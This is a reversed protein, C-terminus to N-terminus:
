QPLYINNLRKQWDDKAFFTIKRQSDTSSEICIDLRDEPLYAEAIEPWEILCVGTDLYEELGLEALEAEHEIRYFDMHYLTSADYGYPKVLLFTPSQVNTEGTLAEIFGQAFCTKGAGLDGTLTICDDAACINALKAAVQQTHEPSDTTISIGSM